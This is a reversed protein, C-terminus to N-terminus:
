RYQEYTCADESVKLSDTPLSGAAIHDASLFDTWANDTWAFLTAQIGQNNLEDIMGIKSLADEFKQVQGM